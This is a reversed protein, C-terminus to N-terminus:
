PYVVVLLPEEKRVPIRSTPRSRSEPPVATKRRLPCRSQHKRAVLQPSPAFSHNPTTPKPPGPFRRLAAARISRGSTLPPSKVSGSPSASCRILSARPSVISSSASFLPTAALVMLSVSRPSLVGRVSVMALSPFGSPRVNSSTHLRCLLRSYSHIFLPELPKSAPMSLPLVPVLHGARYGKDVLVYVMDQGLPLLRRRSRQPQLEAGPTRPRRRMPLTFTALSDSHVPLFSEM